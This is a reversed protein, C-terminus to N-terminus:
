NIITGGWEVVSYGSRNVKTLQQELVEIEKDLGKFTMLIRIVNDPKPEIILPM